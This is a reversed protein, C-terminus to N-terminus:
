YDPFKHKEPLPNCSPNSDSESSNASIRPLENVVSSRTDPIGSTATDNVSTISSGHNLQTNVEELSMRKDPDEKTLGIIVKILNDREAKSNADSYIKDDLLQLLLTEKETEPLEALWLTHANAEQLLPNSGKNSPKLTYSGQYKRYLDKLDSELMLTMLTIGLGWLDTTGTYGQREPENVLMERSIEPSYYYPTGVFSKSRTQKELYRSLGFDVIKIEGSLTIIINSLKLDRYIIDNYHIHELTPLLKRAIETALKPGSTVRVRPNEGYLADFLDSGDVYESIVIKVKYQSYAEVPIDQECRIPIFSNKSKDYLVVAYVRAINSHKPLLLGCIEGKKDQLSESPNKKEKMIKVAYHRNSKDVCCYVNGFAGKGLLSNNCEIKLDFLQSLVTLMDKHTYKIEKGWDSTIQLYGTSEDSHKETRKSLKRENISTGLGHAERNAPMSNDPSFGFNILRSFAMAFFGSNKEPHNLSTRDPQTKSYSMFLFADDGIM